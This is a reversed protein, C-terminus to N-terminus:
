EDNNGRIFQIGHKLNNYLCANKTNLSVILVGSKIEHKDIKDALSHIVDTSNAVFESEEQMTWYGNHDYVVGFTGGQDLDQLEVEPIDENEYKELANIIRKLMNRIRRITM